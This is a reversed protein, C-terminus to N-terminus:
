VCIRMCAGVTCLERERVCVQGVKAAYEPKEAQKIAGELPEFVGAAVYMFCGVPYDVGDKRFGTDTKFCGEEPEEPEQMPTFCPSRQTHMHHTYFFLYWVHGGRGSAWVGVCVCLWWVVCVCWRWWVVPVAVLFWRSVFFGGCVPLKTGLQLDKPPDMFRCNPRDWQLRFYYQLRGGKSADFAAKLAQVEAVYDARKLPDWDRLVACTVGFVGSVDKFPRLRTHLPTAPAASPSHLM